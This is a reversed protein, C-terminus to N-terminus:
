YKHVDFYLTPSLRNCHIPTNKNPVSIGALMPIIGIPATLIQILIPLIRTAAIGKGQAVLM